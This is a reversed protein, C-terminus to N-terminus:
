HLKRWQEVPLDRAATAAIRIRSEQSMALKALLNRAGNRDGMTEGSYRCRGLALIAEVRWMPENAGLALACMDGTHPQLTWIAASVKEMHNDYLQRWQRELQEFADNGTLEALPRAAAMLNRGARWEDYVLREEHLKLGLTFAAQLVQRAKEPQEKAKYVLGLVTTANGVAKLSQLAPRDTDYTILEQPRDAFVGPRAMSSARILLDVAKRIKQVETPEISPRYSEYVSQNTTFEAIAQRYLDIADAPETM